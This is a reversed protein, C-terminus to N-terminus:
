IRINGVKTTKRGLSPKLYPSDIEFCRDCKAGALASPRVFCKACVSPYVRRIHRCIATARCSCNFFFTHPLRSVQYVAGSDSLVVAWELFANAGEDLVSVLSDRADPRIADPLIERMQFVSVAHVAPAFGLTM